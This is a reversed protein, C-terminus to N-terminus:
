TAIYILLRILVLITSLHSYYELDTNGCKLGMGEHMM